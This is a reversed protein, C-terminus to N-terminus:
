FSNNYYLYFFYHQLQCFVPAAPIIYSLKSKSEAFNENCFGAFDSVIKIAFFVLSYFKKKVPFYLYEGGQGLKKISM